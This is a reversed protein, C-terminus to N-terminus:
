KLRDLTGHIVSTNTFAGEEIGDTQQYSDVVSTSRDYGGSDVTAEDLTGVSSFAPLLAGDIDPNSRTSAEKGWISKGLTLAGSFFSGFM